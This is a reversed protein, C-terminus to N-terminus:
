LNKTSQLGSNKYYVDLNFCGWLNINAETHPHPEWSSPPDESRGDNEEIAMFILKKEEM